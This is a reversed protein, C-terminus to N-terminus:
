ALEIIRVDVNASSIGWIQIAGNIEMPLAEGAEVPYGDSTSVGSTFGIYLTGTSPNNNRISIARRYRLPSSPLQVAVGSTTIQTVAGGLGASNDEANLVVVSTGRLQREQTTQNFPVQSKGPNAGSGVIVSAEHAM